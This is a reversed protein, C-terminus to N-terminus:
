IKIKHLFYFQRLNMIVNIKTNFFWELIYAQIQNAVPYLFSRSIIYNLKHIEIMYDHMRCERRDYMTDKEVKM